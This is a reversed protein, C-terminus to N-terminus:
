ANWNNKDGDVVVVIFELNPFDTKLLSIATPLHVLLDNKGQINLKDLFEYEVQISPPVIKNVINTYVRVDTDASESLISLLM